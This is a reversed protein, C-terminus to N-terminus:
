IEYMSAIYQQELWQEFSDGWININTVFDPSFDTEGTEENYFLRRNEEYRFDIYMQLYEQQEDPTLNYLLSNSSIVNKTTLLDIIQNIYDKEEQKLDENTLPKISELFDSLRDNDSDAYIEPTEIEPQPEEQDTFATESIENRAKNKWRSITRESVGFQEALEKTTGTEDLIGAGPYKTRTQRDEVALGKERAKNLWRYATRESINYKEALEKRTGKFKAIKSLPPKNTRKEGTEIRAKEKWRYITRESVGWSKAIEKNTGFEYLINSGPYKRM